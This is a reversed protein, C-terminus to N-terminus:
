KQPLAGSTQPKIEELARMEKQDRAEADEMWKNKWHIHFFWTVVGSVIATPIAWGTASLGFASLATALLSIVVLATNVFAVSFATSGLRNKSGGWDMSIEQNIDYPLGTIISPYHKVFWARIRSLRRRYIIIAVRRQLMKRYTILSVILLIVAVGGLLWIRLEAVVFSQVTIAVTSVAAVFTVYFNLRTEGAAKAEQHLAYLSQHEQLLFEKAGEISDDTMM